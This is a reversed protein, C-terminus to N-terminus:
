IQNLYVETHLKRRNANCTFQLQQTDLRVGEGHGNVQAISFILLCIIKNFQMSRLDYSVVNLYLRSFCYFSGFSVEVFFSFLSMLSMEAIRGRVKIHKLQM